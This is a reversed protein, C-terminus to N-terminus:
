TLGTVLTIQLFFFQVIWGWCDWADDAEGTGWDQANNTYLYMEM